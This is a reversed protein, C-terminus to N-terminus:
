SVTQNRFETPTISYKAKFNRNFTPANKYGSQKSIAEISLEPHELLLKCSYSLRLETVYSTLSDYQSGQTFVQGIRHFSLQFKDSLQQRGFDPDLFLKEGEIAHSIMTFLEVDTMTDPDIAKGSTGETPTENEAPITGEQLTQLQKRISDYANKYDIAERIQQTLARNKEKILRQQKYNRWQVYGAMIIFLVVVLIISHLIFLQQKKHEIEVENNRITTMQEMNEKRNRTFVSDTVTNIQKAIDLAAQQDGEEELVKCKTKLCEEVYAKSFEEGNVRYISDLCEFCKLAEKYRKKLVLYNATHIWTHLDDQTNEDRSLMYQQEAEKDMGKNAFAHAKIIATNSKYKSAIAPQLDTCSLLRQLSEDLKPLYSYAKESYGNRCCGWIFTLYGHVLLEVESSVRRNKTEREIQTIGSKWQEEALDWHNLRALCKAIHIQAYGKEVLPAKVEPEAADRARQLAVEYTNENMNIECLIMKALFYSYDKSKKFSNDKAAKRAHFEALRYKNKKFYILARTLEAEREPFTNANELSDTMALARDPDQVTISAIRNRWEEIEKKDSEPNTCGVTLWTLFLFLIQKISINMRKTRLSVITQKDSTAIRHKDNRKRHM